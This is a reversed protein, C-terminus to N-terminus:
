NRLAIWESHFWPSSFLAWCCTLEEGACPCPCRPGCPPLSHFCWGVALMLVQVFFIILFILLRVLMSTELLEPYLRTYAAVTTIIVKTILITWWQIQQTTITRNTEDKRALNTLVMKNAHQLSIQGNTDVSKEGCSTINGGDM